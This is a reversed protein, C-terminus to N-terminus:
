KQQNQRYLFKKVRILSDFKKGSPSIWYRDVRGKTVGRKRQKTVLKWDNPLVFEKSAEKQEIQLLTKATTFELCPSLVDDDEVKQNIDISLPSPPTDM